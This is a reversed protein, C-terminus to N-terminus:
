SRFKEPLFASPNNMAENIRKKFECVEHVAKEQLGAPVPPPEPLIESGLSQGKNHSWEKVLEWKSHQTARTQM